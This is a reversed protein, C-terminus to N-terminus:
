KEVVPLGSDCSVSLSDPKGVRSRTNNRRQVGVAGEGEARGLEGWPDTGERHSLHRAGELFLLNLVVGQGGEGLSSEPM